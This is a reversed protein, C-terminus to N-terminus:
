PSCLDIVHDSCIVEIGDLSSNPSLIEEQTYVSITDQHGFQESQLIPVELFEQFSDFSSNPVDIHNLVKAHFSVQETEYKLEESSNNQLSGNIDLSFNCSPCNGGHKEAYMDGCIEHIEKFCHKCQIASESSKIPRFCSMCDNVKYINRRQQERKEQIDSLEVNSLSDISVTVSHDCDLLTECLPCLGDGEKAHIDACIDHIKRHCENCTVCPEVSTIPRCCLLCDDHTNQKKKKRNSNFPMEEFSQLLQIGVCDPLPLFSELTIREFSAKDREDFFYVTLNSNYLDNECETLLIKLMYLQGIIGRKRKIKRAAEDGIANRVVLSRDCHQWAWEFQLSTRQSDFGYVICVFRWPRGSRKTKWAGGSKLIGNHQRLRRHPDVTFGVYSKMPHKPDLSGLLYCHFFKENGNAV